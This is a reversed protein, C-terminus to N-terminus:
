PEGDTPAIAQGRWYADVGSGWSVMMRGVHLASGKRDAQPLPADGVHSVSYGLRGDLM